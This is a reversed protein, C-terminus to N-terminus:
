ELEPRGGGGRPVCQQVAELDRCLHRRRLMLTLAESWSAELLGRGKVGWPGWGWGAKGSGVQIHPQWSAPSVPAQSSATDAWAWSSRSNTTQVPSCNLARM